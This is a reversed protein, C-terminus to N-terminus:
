DRSEDCKSQCIDAGMFADSISAQSTDVYIHWHVPGAGIRIPLAQKAVSCGSWASRLGIGPPTTTPPIAEGLKRPQWSQDLDGCAVVRRRFSVNLM